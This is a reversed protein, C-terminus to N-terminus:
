LRLYVDLHIDTEGRTLKVSSYEIRKVAARLLRNKEEITMDPDKLAAIAKQLTVIHKGYDVNKPMAERALHIEKECADMKEQLAKSRTMFDERTYIGTELYEFLDEKRKRYDDMQKNLKEIRRKQIVVANGDGNELKVQLAPLEVNELTYIVAEYIDELIVGKYCVPTQPCQVREHSGDRAKPKREMARGCNKCFLIGALWNKLSRDHALRPNSLRREQAMEFVEPDVIAPHKGEVLIVEDEPQMIRKVIREGNEMVQTAKRFNFRIKGVYHPNRLMAALREYRWQKGKPTPVGMDNLRKAIMGPTLGEHVYWDFIMRVIDADENPELTWDKGIRVKNYGYPPASQSFNGRKAALERGRRMIDKTYDLFDANMMMEQQLIKREMKNKLDYTMRLTIILTDTFQFGKIVTDCDGLDGRSLRASDAVLVGVINPDEIRALVKQFEERDDIREGSVVERYINEEPIFGGLERMAYEQLAQEHKSLVEEVTENPDDQRSKRLYILYGKIYQVMENSLVNRQAILSKIDPM